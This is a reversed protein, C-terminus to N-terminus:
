CPSKACDIPSSRARPSRGHLQQDLLEPFSIADVCQKVQPEFHRFGAYLEAM